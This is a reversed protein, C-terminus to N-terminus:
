NDPAKCAAIISYEWWTKRDACEKVIEPVEWWWRKGSLVHCGWIEKWLLRGVTTRLQKKIAGDAEDSDMQSTVASTTASAVIGNSNEAGGSVATFRTNTIISGQGRLRAKELWVPFNRSPHSTRFSLELNLIVNEDIWRQLLPGMSKAVPWPDIIVMNLYGRPTLIRHINQLLQPIEASPLISTMKLCSVSSFSDSELALMSTSLSPSIVPHINPYDRHNLPQPSLHYVPVSINTAALYSATGQTEFLALVRQFSPMIDPKLPKGEPAWITDMNYLAILMWRKKEMERERHMRLSNEKCKGMSNSAEPDQINRATVVDESHDNLKRLVNRMPTRLMGETERQVQAIDLSDMPYQNTAGMDFFQSSASVPLRSETPSIAWDDPAKWSVANDVPRM